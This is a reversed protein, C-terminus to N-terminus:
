SAFPLGTAETVPLADMDARVAIYAGPRGTVLDAVIGTEGVDTRVELDLEGLEEAILSATREESFGPEPIRHLRHRLEVVYDTQADVLKAINVLIEETM